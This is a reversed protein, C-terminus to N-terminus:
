PSKRRNLGERSELKPPKAANAESVKVIKAEIDQRVFANTTMVILWSFEKRKVAQNTLVHETTYALHILM